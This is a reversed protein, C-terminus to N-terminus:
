GEMPPDLIRLTSLLCQGEVFGLRGQGIYTLFVRRKAESGRWSAETLRKALPRLLSPVECSAARPGEMPPM